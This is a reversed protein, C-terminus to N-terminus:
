ASPRTKIPHGGIVMDARHDKANVGSGQTLTRDSGEEVYGALVKEGYVNKQIWYEGENNTVFQQVTVPTISGGDVATIQGGLNIPFAAINCKCM